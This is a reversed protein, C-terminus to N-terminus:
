KDKYYKKYIAATDPVSCLRMILYVLVQKIIFFANGFGSKEWRRSSNIVKGFLYKQRGLRNLRISFEVDEMLPIEPFLEHKVVPARRFFQVQDGFSIKLFAARFDNAYEILRFLIDSSDFRCGVSGGVVNPFKNLMKIIEDIETAPLITDAHLIVVVEGSASYIGRRIQGGRGGGKDIPFDHKIVKASLDRSIARTLDSSGGDVVIIEFLYKSEIVSAICNRIKDEENLTPIIISVSKLDSEKKISKSYFWLLCNEYINLLLFPLRLITKVLRIFDSKKELKDRQLKM